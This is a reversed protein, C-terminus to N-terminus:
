ARRLAVFGRGGATWTEATEFGTRRAYRVLPAHGIVAWPFTGPAAPDFPGTGDDVRVRMRRDVQRGLAPAATEVLVSGSPALVEALRALLRQPDGGIGINGDVLLASDWAGEGPLPDFVSRTLAVGGSRATHAVAAPNVDIGLARRGEAVLATVLRGPGCGVDLVAGRSRRLVAPDAADPAACWREVDMPLLLGEPGRLFLPGGGARLAESYAM